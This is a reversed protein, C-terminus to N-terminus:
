ALIMSFNLLLTNVENGYAPNTNISGIGDDWLIDPYNFDGGLIINVPQHIKIIKLLLERLYLLPGTDTNPLRHFFSLYIVLNDLQSKAWIM